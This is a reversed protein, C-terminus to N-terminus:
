WGYTGGENILKVLDNAKTECVVEAVFEFKTSKGCNCCVVERDSIKFIQGRCRSCRAEM